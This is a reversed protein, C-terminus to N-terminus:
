NSRCFESEFYKRLFVLDVNKKENRLFDVLQLIINRKEEFTYHAEM